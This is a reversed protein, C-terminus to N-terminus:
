RNGPKELLEDENKVKFEQLLKNYKKITFSDPMM